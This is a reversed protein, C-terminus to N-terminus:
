GPQTTAIARSTSPVHGRGVAVRMAAVVALGGAISMGAYGDRLFSLAAAVCSSPNPATAIDRVKTRGEQDLPRGGSALAELEVWEKGLAALIAEFATRDRPCSVM